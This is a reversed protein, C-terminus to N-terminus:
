CRGPPPAVELGALLVGAPWVFDAFSFGAGLMDHAQMWRTLGCVDEYFAGDFTIPREMIEWVQRAAEESMGFKEGVYAAVAPFDSEAAARGKLTARVFRVAADRNEELWDLRAGALLYAHIYGEATTLQHVRDPCIEETRSGFPQWLFFADIDGSCLAVPLVQSDLNQVTVKAADVANRSLYTSLFWSGTSGVRTAVRKGVLDAATRIETAAMAIEGKSERSIVLFVQYDPNEAWFRVSPLEGSVVIDGEGAKFAQLATAGSPFVRLEVDLAEEKYFGKQDAMWIADDYVVPGVFVTV